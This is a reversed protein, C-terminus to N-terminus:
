EDDEGEEQKGIDEFPILVEDLSVGYTKNNESDRFIAGDAVYTADILKESIIQGEETQLWPENYNKDTLYKRFLPGLPTDNEELNRKNIESLLINLENPDTSPLSNEEISQHVISSLTDDDMAAYSRELNRLRFDHLSFDAEYGRLYNNKVKEMAENLKGRELEGLTLLDAKIASQGEYYLKQLYERTAGQTYKLKLSENLKDALRLMERALTGKSDKRILTNFDKESNRITKLLEM